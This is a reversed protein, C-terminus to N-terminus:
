ASFLESFTLNFQSSSPNIQEMSLAKTAEAKTAYYGVYARKVKGDPTKISRRIAYPRRRREGLFCINGYGNLNKKKRPEPIVSKGCYCCFNSDDPIQKKCKKCIM